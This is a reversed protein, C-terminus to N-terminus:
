GSAVKSEVVRLVRRERRGISAPVAGHCLGGDARGLGDQGSRGAALALLCTWFASLDPSPAMAPLSKFSINCIVEWLCQGVEYNPGCWTRSGELGVIPGGKGLGGLKRTGLAVAEPGSATLRYELRSGEMRKLRSEVQDQAENSFTM